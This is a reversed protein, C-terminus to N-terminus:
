KIFIGLELDFVDVNEKTTIEGSRNVRLYRKIVIAERLKKSLKQNKSLYEDTIDCFGVNVTLPRQGPASGETNIKWAAMQYNEALLVYFHNFVDAGKCGGEGSSVMLEPLTLKFIISLTGSKHFTKMRSFSSLEM